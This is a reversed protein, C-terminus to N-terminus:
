ELVRGLTVEAPCVHRRQAADAGDRRRVSGAPEEAGVLTLVVAEEEVALGLVELPLDDAVLLAEAEDVGVADGALHLPARQRLAAPARVRVVVLAGDAVHHLVPLPERPRR